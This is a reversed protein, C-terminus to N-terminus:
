LSKWKKVLGNGKQDRRKRKSPLIPNQQLFDRNAIDDRTIANQELLWKGLTSTGDSPYGSPSALEKLMNELKSNGIIRDNIKVGQRTLSGKVVNGLFPRIADVLIEGKRQGSPTKIAKMKERLSHVAQPSWGPNQQAPTSFTTSTSDNFMSPGRTLSDKPTRARTPTSTAVPHPPQQFLNTGVLYDEQEPIPLYRTQIRPTEDVRGLNAHMQLTRYYQAYKQDESLSSDDLVEQIKRDLTKLHTVAAAREYRERAQQLNVPVLSYKTTM